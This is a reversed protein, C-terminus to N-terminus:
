INKEINNQIIQNIDDDINDLARTLWNNSATGAFQAPVAWNNNSRVMVAMGSRSRANPGFKVSYNRVIPRTGSYLLWELWPLSYGSDDISSAIDTFLLGDVTAEDLINYIFGGSLGINTIKIKTQNIKGNTVIADIVRDVLDPNSIGFEYRLQGNKLSDYEPQSKISNELLVKIDNNISPISKNIIVSVESAMAELILKRITADSELLNISAKIM